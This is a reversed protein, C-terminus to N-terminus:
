VPPSTRLVTIPPIGPVHNAVTSFNTESCTTIVNLGLIGGIQLAFGGVGGAGGHVLLTQGKKFRIKRSLIQWATFGACPIAAADELERDETKITENHTM